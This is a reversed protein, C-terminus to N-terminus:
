EEFDLEYTNRSTHVRLKVIGTERDVFQYAVTFQFVNHSLVRYDFGGVLQMETRIHREAAVKEYSPNKYVEYITSIESTNYKRNIEKYYEKKTM